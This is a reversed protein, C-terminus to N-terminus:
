SIITAPLRHTPELRFTPSAFAEVTLIEDGDQLTDLSLSCSLAHQGNIQVSCAGCAFHDCGYKTAVLGLRERLVWILPTKEHSDVAVSYGNVLLLKMM